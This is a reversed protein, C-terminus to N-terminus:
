VGDLISSKQFPKDAAKFAPNFSQSVPANKAIMNINPNPITNIQAISYAPTSLVILVFLVLLPLLSLNKWKSKVTLLPLM